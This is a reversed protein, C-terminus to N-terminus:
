FHEIANIKIESM